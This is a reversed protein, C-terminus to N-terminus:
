GPRAQAAAASRSEWPDALARTDRPRTRCRHCPRHMTLTAFHTDAAAPWGPVGKAPGGDRELRVHRDFASPELQEHRVDDPALQEARAEHAGRQAQAGGALHRGP